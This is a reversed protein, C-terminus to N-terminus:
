IAQFRFYKLYDPDSIYALNSDMLFLLFEIRGEENKLAELRGRVVHDRLLHYVGAVLLAGTPGIPLCTARVLDANLSFVEDKAVSTVAPFNLVSKWEERFPFGGIKELEAIEELSRSGPVKEKQSMSAVGMIKVHGWSVFSRLYRHAGMLTSCTGMVAGFIFGSHKSVKRMECAIHRMSWYHGDISGEETYQDMLLHGPLKALQYAHSIASIGEPASIVEAGFLELHHIKGLPTSHNVVAKLGCAPFISALYAADKGFNGSTAAVVMPYDDFRGKQEAARFLGLAPFLKGSFMGLQFAPFASVRLIKGIDADRFWEANQISMPTPIPIVEPTYAGNTLLAVRARREKRESEELIQM